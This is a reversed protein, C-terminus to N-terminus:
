ELRSPVAGTRYWSQILSGPGFGTAGCAIGNAFTTPTGSYNSVIGGYTPLGFDYTVAILGIHLSQIYQLLQLGAAPTNADCYYTTATTWEGLIVPAMAALSGFKTAWTSQRQDAASHFYPHSSYFVQNLPDSLPVVGNLSEAFKLGDALLTNSAGTSRITNM